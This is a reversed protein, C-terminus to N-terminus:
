NGSEGDTDSNSAYFVAYLPHYNLLFREIAFVHTTQIDITDKETPRSALTVEKQQNNADVTLLLENEESGHIITGYQQKSTAFFQNQNIIVDLLSQIADPSLHARWLDDGPDTRFVLTGDGYLSWEQESHMEAEAFEPLEALHVLIHGPTRNYSIARGTPAFNRAVLVLLVVLFIVLGDIFSSIARRRLMGGPKHM